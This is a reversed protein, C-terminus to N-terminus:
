QPQSQPAQQQVGQRMRQLEELMQQPTKVQGPIAQPPVTNNPPQAPPQIPPQEATDAEDDDNNAARPAQSAPSGPAEASRASLVLRRPAGDSTSGVMLVNYGSDYLIASLVDAPKGPGYVGFVREDRSNGEVQMGTKAAVDRIVDGLSANTATITLRDDALQM